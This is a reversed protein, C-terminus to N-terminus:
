LKKKKNEKKALKAVNCRLLAPKPDKNKSKESRPLDKYNSGQTQVKFSTNYSPCYDKPCRADSDRVIISSRLSAKTKANIAKQM